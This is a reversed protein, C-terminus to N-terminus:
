PATTGTLIWNYLIVQGHIMDTAKQPDIEAMLLGAKIGYLASIVETSEKNLKKEEVIHGLEHLGTRIINPADIKLENILIIDGKRKTYDIGDPTMEYQIARAGLVDSMQSNRHSYINGNELQGYPEEYDKFPEIIVPIDTNQTITETIKKTIESNSLNKSDKVVTELKPFINYPDTINDIADVIPVYEYVGLACKPQYRINDANSAKQDIDQYNQYIDTLVNKLVQHDPRTQDLKELQKTLSEQRNPQSTVEALSPNILEGGDIM